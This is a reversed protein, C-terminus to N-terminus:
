RRDLITRFELAGGRKSCDVVEQWLVLKAKGGIVNWEAHIRCVSSDAPAWNGIIRDRGQPSTGSSPLLDIDAEQGDPMRVPLALRKAGRGTSDLTLYLAVQEDALAKASANRARSEAETANDQGMCGLLMIRGNEFPENIFTMRPPTECRHAARIAKPLNEQAVRNIFYANVRSMGPSPPCLKDITRGTEDIVDDVDRLTAAHTADPECRGFSERMQSVLDLHKYFADCKLKLPANAATKVILLSQQMRKQNAALERKCAPTGPQALAPTTSALNLVAALTILLAAVALLPM